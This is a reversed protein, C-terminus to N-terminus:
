QGQQMIHAGTLFSSAQQTLEYQLENEGNVVVTSTGLEAGGVEGVEM